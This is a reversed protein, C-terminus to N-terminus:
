NTFVGTFNVADGYSPNGTKYGSWGTTTLTITLYSWIGLYQSKQYTVGGANQFIISYTGNPTECGYSNCAFAEICNSPAAGTGVSINSADSAVTINAWYTGTGMGGGYGGSCTISGSGTKGGFM